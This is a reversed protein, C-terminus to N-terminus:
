LLQKYSFNWIMQAGFNVQARAGDSSVPSIKFLSQSLVGGANSFLKFKNWLSVEQSRGGRSFCAVGQVLDVVGGVRTRKM